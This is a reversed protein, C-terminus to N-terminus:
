KKIWNETVYEVSNDNITSMAIPFKPSILDIWTSVDDSWMEKVLLATCISPVDLGESLLAQCFSDIDPPWQLHFSFDSHPYLAYLKDLQSNSDEDTEADFWKEIQQIFMEPRTSYFKLTVSM